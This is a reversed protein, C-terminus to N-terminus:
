KSRCQLYKVECIESQKICACICYYPPTTPLKHNLEDIYLLNQKEPPNYQRNGHVLVYKDQIPLDAYTKTMCLIFTYFFLFNWIPSISVLIM